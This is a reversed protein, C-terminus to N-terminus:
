KEEYESFLRKLYDHPDINSELKKPTPSSLELAKRESDNRLIGVYKRIDEYIAEQRPDDDAYLVATALVNRVIHRFNTSAARYYEPSFEGM